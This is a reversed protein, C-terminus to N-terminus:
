SFKHSIRRFVDAVRGDLHVEASAPTLSTFIGQQDETDLAEVCGHGDQHVVDIDARECRVWSLIVPVGLHDVQAAILQVVPVVLQLELRDIVVRELDSLDATEEVLRRLHVGLRTEPVSVGLLRLCDDRRAAGGEGWCLRRLSRPM